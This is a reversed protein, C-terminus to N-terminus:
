ILLDSDTLYHGLKVRPNLGISLVKCVMWQRWIKAAAEQASLKSRETSFKSEEQKSICEKIQLIKEKSSSIKMEEQELM